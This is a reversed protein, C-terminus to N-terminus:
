RDKAPDDETIEEPKLKEYDDREAPDDKTTEKPKLPVFEYERWFKWWPAKIQTLLTRNKEPVDCDLYPTPEEPVVKGKIQPDKGEFQRECAKKAAEQNKLVELKLKLKLSQAVESVLRAGLGASDLAKPARVGIGITKAEPNATTHKITSQGYQKRLLGYFKQDCCEFWLKVPRDYVCEISTAYGELPTEGEVTLEGPMAARLTWDEEPTFGGTKECAKPESHADQIGAIALVASLLIVKVSIARHGPAVPCRPARVAAPCGARADEHHFDPAAEVAM